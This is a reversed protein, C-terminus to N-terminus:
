IHILSLEVLEYSRCLLKEGNPGRDKLDCALHLATQGHCNQLNLLKRKKDLTLLQEAFGRNQFQVARMLLTNGEVAERVCLAEASITQTTDAIMKQVNPNAAHPIMDFLMMATHSSVEVEVDLDDVLKSM